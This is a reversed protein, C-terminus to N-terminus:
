ALVYLSKGQLVQHFFSLVHLVAVLGPRVRFHRGPYYRREAETWIQVFATKCCSSATLAPLDYDGKPKLGYKSLVLSTRFSLFVFNM